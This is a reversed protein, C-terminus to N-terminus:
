VALTWVLENRGQRLGVAELQARVRSLADDGWVPATFWVLSKGEDGTLSIGHQRLNAILLLAQEVDSAKLFLKIGEEIDFWVEGWPLQQLKAWDPDGEFWLDAIQGSIRTKYGGDAHIAQWYDPDTSDCDPLDIALGLARAISTADGFINVIITDGPEKLTGGPRSCRDYM